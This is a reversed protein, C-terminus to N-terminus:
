GENNSVHARGNNQDSQKNRCEYEYHGFKKCYFCQVRSKDTWKRGRQAQNQSNRLQGSQEQTTREEDHQNTRGINGRGRNCRGKNGRGRGRNFSAQTKFAQELSEEELNLRTEHSLLSRTLEVVLFTTLDKSEM